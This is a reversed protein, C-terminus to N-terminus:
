PSWPLQAPRTTLLRRAKIPPVLGEDQGPAQKAPEVNPDRKEPGRSPNDKEPKRPTPSM